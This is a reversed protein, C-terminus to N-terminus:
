IVGRKIVNMGSRNLRELFGERGRRKENELRIQMDRFKELEFKEQAKLTELISTM